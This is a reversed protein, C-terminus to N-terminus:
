RFRLEPCREKEVKKTSSITVFDESKVIAINFTTFNAFIFIGKAQNKDISGLFNVQILLWLNM